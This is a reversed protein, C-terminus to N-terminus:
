MVYAYDTTTGTARVDSAAEHALVDAMLIDIKQHESPKGIVYKDFVAITEQSTM